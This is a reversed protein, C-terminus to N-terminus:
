TATLISTLGHYVELLRSRIPVSAEALRRQHSVYQERGEPSEIKIPQFGYATLDYPSARMDIERADAALLFADAVLESPCWPSIKTAFKYLDMTVHICGRQDYASTSERSLQTRNLPAAPGTFFRFADYHTCRLDSREVVAGIEEATLRLPVKTHRPQETKYLMAWEHLGFCCFSPAREAIGSLYRLAWRLFDVRHAPFSAAPIVAGSETAIFDDPWDLESPACDELAVGFGPSWRLLHSPRYSYYDFLFDYV